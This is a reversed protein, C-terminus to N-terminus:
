EEQSRNFEERTIQEKKGTENNMVWVMEHKDPHFYNKVTAPIRSNAKKTVQELVVPLELGSKLRASKPLNVGTGIYEIIPKLDSSDLTKILRNYVQNTNAGGITADEKIVGATLLAKALLFKDIRQKASKDSDYSRTDNLFRLYSGHGSYEALGETIKPIVMNMAERGAIEKREKDSPQREIGIREKTKPDFIYSQGKPLQGEKAAYSSKLQEQREPTLKEGNAPNIGKDIKDYEGALKAEHTLQKTPALNTNVERNANLVDRTHRNRNWEEMETNGEVTGEPHEQMYRIHSDTNAATGHLTKNGASPIPNDLDFQRNMAHLRAQDEVSRGAAAPKPLKIGMADALMYKEIEEDPVGPIMSSPQQKSQQGGMNPPLVGREMASQIFSPMQHEAGPMSEIFSNPNQEEEQMTEPVNAEEGGSELAKRREIEEKLKYFRNLKYLPNKENEYREHAEQRAQANRAAASNARTEMGLMHKLTYPLTKEARIDQNQYLKLQEEARRDQAKQMAHQILMNYFNTGQSINNHLAIDPAQTNPLNYAM